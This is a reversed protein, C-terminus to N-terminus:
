AYATALSDQVYTMAATFTPDTARTAIEDPTPDDVRSQLWWINRFPDRIRSVRDGWFLDTPETVSTAGVALAKAHAADTDPVFLRLFAPTAPWGAPTDFMMVVADGIRVEAHGIGGDENPVRALETADFAETLFDILRATDDTIVWPTVTTYGDPIETHNSM